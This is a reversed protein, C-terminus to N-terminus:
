GIEVNIRRRASAARKPLTVTLVGRRYGAQAKNDEVPAPLPVAREFRGYACEMIHYRYGGVTPKSERHVRKEGRVVLTDDVVAIDFDERDMGPAELRVVIEKDREEVEAALLAWRPARQVVQEEATQLGGEHHVPSFRTLAHAARERLQQWGEALSEWAHGFGRRIQDLTSM